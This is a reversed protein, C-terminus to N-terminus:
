RNHGVSRYTHDFPILSPFPNPVHLEIVWWYGKECNVKSMQVVISDLM